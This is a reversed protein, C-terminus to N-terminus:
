NSLPIKISPHYQYNELIIDDLTYESIDNVVRDSIKVTPLEYPIRTIQEKVGQIQNLYVHCDGMNAILQDPIMNVQKAIMMLLLAYSAINFPTGLPVDQSRTNYMLSIARKPLNIVDCDEHTFLNPILPVLNKRENLSLERTYVQFGYHCPPLIMQDLEGVNWASVMLRRSDPNTKLENILNEIQDIYMSGAQYITEGDDTKLTTEIGKGVRWDRWQKGYIPGLEGHKKAFEDNVRITEIFDEKSMMETEPFKNHFAKYCDGDWIHCGNQVLYQINTSGSLFWLLETVMVKWAMKKTTILPFGDSMDHRFQIGFLSKTGTGTRDSKSFSQDDSVLLSLLSQYWPDLKNDKM